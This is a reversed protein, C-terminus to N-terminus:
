VRRPRGAQARPFKWAYFAMGCALMALALGCVGWWGFCQWGLAGLFTGTSGGIFYCTMYVSNLRSRMTPVLSYIWAQNAVHGSQVGLDMLLVGIVLGILHHGLCGLILFSVVALSLAVGVAKRSGVRDTMKGILPAFAAGAAGVLGFLGAATSGYHYPPTELLFVLCTWFAAFSGFLTAGYFSSERLTPQDRVMTVMSRFLDPYSLHNEPPAKPLFRFLLVSLIVMLVSAGAFVARWGFQAGFFGSATRALLIGMLLAGIVTGVVKGREAPPALTAAFPLILHVVSGSAGVAFAAIALCTFNPALSFGALAVSLVLVLSSILPRRERIDGLPVILLMCSMVGLQMLTAVFGAKAPSIAFTRAIDALLPQIYYVNAVLVSVSLAMFWLLRKKMPLTPVRADRHVNRPKSPNDGRIASPRSREFRKDAPRPPQWSGPTLRGPELKRHAVGLGGSGAM